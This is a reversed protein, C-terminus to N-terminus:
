GQGRGCVSALDIKGYSNNLKSPKSWLFFPLKKNPIEKNFTVLDANEQQSTWM